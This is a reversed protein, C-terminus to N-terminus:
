EFIISQTRGVADEKNDPKRDNYSHQKLVMDNPKRYAASRDSQCRPEQRDHNAGQATDGLAGQGVNNGSTGIIECAPYSSL